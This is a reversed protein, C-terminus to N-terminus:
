SWRKQRDKREDTRMSCSAGWILIKMFNSIQNNISVRHPSNLKGSCRVLIVSVKCFSWRINIIMDREIRRLISFTESPNTSFILGCMEYEIVEKWFDHKKHSLKSFYPVASCAMSSLIIHRMRMAHQIVLVVSM